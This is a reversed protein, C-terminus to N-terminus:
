RPGGSGTCESCGACSGLDCREEWTKLCPCDGRCFSQCTGLSYDIEADDEDDDDDDDSDDSVDTDTTLDSGVYLLANPSDDTIDTIADKTAHQVLKASVQSPTLSPEKELILAAAGAVHPAAFSTGSKTSKDADDDHGASLIADGPAFLDVCSGTNSMFGLKDQKTTGGVTIASPVFAPTSQCANHGENGASVVVTVKQAVVRDIADKMFNYAGAAGLSASFIAPRKGESAVWDLAMLLWSWKGRGDSIPPPDRMVKLAHLSVGPAVGFTKGGVIGGVHTGHGDRDIGCDTDSPQCEQLGSASVQITREARSDFEGHTERIGTDAIYVHVGKGAEPAVAYGGDLGSRADIRDIGWSSVENFDQEPNEEMDGDPEVYVAFDKHESLMVDLDDRSADVTAFAIGGESPHGQATCKASGQTPHCLADIKSDDMGEKLIVIWTSVADEQQLMSIRDAHRQYNRVPVGGIFKKPGEDLCKTRCANLEDNYEDVSLVGSSQKFIDKGLIRGESSIQIFSTRELSKKEVDAGLGICVITSFIFVQLLGYTRSFYDSSISSM